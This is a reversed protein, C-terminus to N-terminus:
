LALESIRHRVLSQISYGVKNEKDIKEQKENLGTM